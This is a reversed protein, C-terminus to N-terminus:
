YTVHKGGYKWNLLTMFLVMVFLVCAITAAYGMEFSEYATRYIYLELTTTAGAPGGQTMTYAQLFGGQFGGIVSMICIFFTTPSIMPWTVSWFKQWGNAGDIEAAEYLQRPVNTLAAMYLIMNTGGVAMWFTMLMLAPKAWTTSTLWPIGKLPLGLFDGAREIAVNILGVDTNYLWQWLFCVAVGASITPLFFITRLVIVGRINQIMMSALLLSGFINVPIILMMFITNYLYKWFQSDNAVWVGDLRHFGLLDVVNRFGVFSPPTLLDWHFLTLGIAAVVPLSTFVLFGILNPLVFLYGAWSEQKKFRIKRKSM